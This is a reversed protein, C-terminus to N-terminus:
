EDGEKWRISGADDWGRVTSLMSEVDVGILAAAERPTIRKHWAVWNVHKIITDISQAMRLDFPAGVPPLYNM